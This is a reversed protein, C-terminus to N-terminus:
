VQEGNGYGETIKIMGLERLLDDRTHELERRERYIASARIAVDALREYVENLEMNLDYNEHREM